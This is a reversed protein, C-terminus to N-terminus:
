FEMVTNCESPLAGQDLLQCSFSEYANLCDKYDSYDLTLEVGCDAFNCAEDVVVDICAEVESSPIFGCALGRECGVRGIDEALEGGSLTIKEPDGCGSMAVFLSLGTVIIHKM